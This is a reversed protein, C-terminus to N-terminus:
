QKRGLRAALLPAFFMVALSLLILGGSFPNLEAWLRPGDFGRLLGIGIEFTLTLLAWLAGLRLLTGTGRLGTWRIMLWATFLVIALGVPWGIRSAAQAGVHPVLFMERLIGHVTELIVILLWVMLGRFMAIAKAGAKAPASM